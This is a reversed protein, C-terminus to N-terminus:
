GDTPTGAEKVDEARACAFQYVEDLYDLSLPTVDKAPDPIAFGELLAGLRALIGALMFDTREIVEPLHAAGM